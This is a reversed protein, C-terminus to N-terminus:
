ARLRWMTVLLVALAGVLWGYWRDPRDTLVVEPTAGLDVAQHADIDAIIGDVAGPDGAEFFLGGASTVVQEMEARAAESGADTLSAYLGHVAIGQEAALQGAEPLTYVSPGLVLNDTALIISRARQTGAEDFALACTALGDGVLSSADDDLSVTGALFGELRALAEADFLWTDLDVDLARAAADLEDTVLAYDDTLPFVTRSTNNWVSLAIREGEFSGVLEAFTAVIESDLEIMSGSVDLCLVIDRTALVEARVDRDVPRATLASTAVAVLALAAAALALGGRLVRLRRRYGALSTLYASNAVWTARSLRAPRRWLWGALAAVAVAALVVPVVWATVM